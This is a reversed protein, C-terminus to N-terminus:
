FDLGLSFMYQPISWTHYLNEWAIDLKVPMGLLITRIGVGTSMLLNNPVVKGNDDIKTSKFDAFNGSWAGGMDFFFAGLIHQFLIPVPGAVLARFLPFRLEFNTLFFKTGSIENVMTGRLPMIFESLAYDEPNEFPLESNRFTRNIWNETGGLYYLHPNPGVSVGASFRAAFSLFDNFFIYRRYDTKFSMFGLSSSGFKPTGKMGIYYRTGNVPGFSYGYLVDDYVFKAEPIMLFKSPYSNNPHTLNDKSSNLFNIGWELREFHSFPYSATVNLGYLRFRFLDDSSTNNANYVTKYFFAPNHYIGVQYDILEPLYTYAAYFSSNKLDYLLNAQIYIQHDGMIDTFLAQTVGQFGYLTSYGPNGLVADLGFKVKYDKPVFSYDEEATEEDQNVRQQVDSNPKIVQQRNLEIEFNGYGVLENRKSTSDSKAINDINNLLKKREYYKERLKTLPLTDSQLRLDFPNKILFIDYGGNMLTSFVLKTGDNSISIQSIGTLSNTKPYVKNTTLNLEYINGIGNDDSVYLIKTGDSSIALSSKFFESNKTIRKIELTKINISYIDTQSVDYKWMKQSTTRREKDLNDGRDSIFYILDPNPGWVPNSDSFLDETLNSLKKSNLNYLYIDSKELVTAVFSLYEGNRSWAVSTLSNMKIDLKEYNGDKADVIFIADNGGAKASIALKTGDPNWSIGPTLLNLDEFDQMRYSSIIKRVEKKENLDLIFVSFINDRDSIFAIKSGDPSISPSTNYFNREKSIDTIREAYDDADTFKEIDPWYYKKMDKKWEKSFEKLDLKFSSKFAADLNGFVRIRNVLDGVMREGYKEAVYWYFTQGGRYALFGDFYELDIMGESLSVDRMYMDTQTDLGGISEYEALGENMWIPFQINRGTYLSTQFTGGYLMENLVAHVLEHHIVHRLQAYDGQFPVVVRNKLSETFGGIGESMFADVVNTQEFENHSNYVILANRKQVKFNLTNEISKLSKEAEVATFEALYQADNHFYIDFHKTELYKWSFNQYQVKNKGFQGFIKGPIILSVIIILFFFKTIKM